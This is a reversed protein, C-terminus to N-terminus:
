PQAVTSARVVPPRTAVIVPAAGRSPATSLATTNGVAAAVAPRPPGVLVCSAEILLGVMWAALCLQGAIAAFERDVPGALRM